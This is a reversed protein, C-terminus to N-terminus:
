KTKYKVKYKKILNKEECIDLCDKIKIVCYKKDPNQKKLKDAKNVFYELKTM